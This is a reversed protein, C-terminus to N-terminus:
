NTGVGVIVAMMHGVYGPVDRVKRSPACICAHRPEIHIKGAISQGPQESAKGKSPQQKGFIRQRDQESYIKRDLHEARRTIDDQFVDSGGFFIRRLHLGEDLQRCIAVARSDQIQRRLSREENTFMNRIQVGTGLRLASIRDPAM